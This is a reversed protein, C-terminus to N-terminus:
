DVALKTPDAGVRGGASDLSGARALTFDFRVSPLGSVPAEPDNPNEQVVLEPSAGFVVDTELYRDPFYLATAKETKTARNLGSVPDVTDDRFFDDDVSLGEIEPNLSL